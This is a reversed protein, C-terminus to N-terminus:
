LSRRTVKDPIYGVEEADRVTGGLVALDHEGHGDEAAEIADEFGGLGADEFLM